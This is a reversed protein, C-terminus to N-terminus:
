SCTPARYEAVLQFVGTLHAACGGPDVCGRTGAHEAPSQAASGRLTMGYCILQDVVKNQDAIQALM